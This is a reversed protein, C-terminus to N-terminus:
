NNRQFLNYPISVFQIQNEELYEEDLFCAPAYVIIKKKPNEKCIHEALTLNLALRTLKNFDNEYVLYILTNGHRGVFYNKANISKIDSLNEGTCLYYVYKAFQLYTPLNGELM